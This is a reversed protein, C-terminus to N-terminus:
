QGDSGNGKQFPNSLLSRMAEGYTRGSSLRDGSMLEVIYQGHTSSWLQKIRKVSVIHSRHIRV